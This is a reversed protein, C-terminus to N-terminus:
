KQAIPLQRIRSVSEEITVIAGANLAEEMSSGEYTLRRFMVEVDPRRLRFIVVSPAADGSFALLQGYDLDHTLVCERERKATALINADSARAMGIDAVHRWEHGASALKRGLEHPLNMNLLFKL